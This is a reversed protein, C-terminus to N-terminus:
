FRWAQNSSTNWCTTHEINNTSFNSLKQIRPFDPQIKPYTSRFTKQIRSVILYPSRLITVCTQEIKQCNRHRGLVEIFTLELFFIFRHPSCSKLTDSRYQNWPGAITIAYTFFLIMITLSFHFTSSKNSIYHDYIVNLKALYM